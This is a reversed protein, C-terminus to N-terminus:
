ARPEDVQVTRLYKPIWNSVPNSGCPPYAGWPEMADELSPDGNLVVRSAGRLDVAAGLITSDNALVGACLPYRNRAWLREFESYDGARIWVLPAFAGHRVLDSDADPDMVLCPPVLNGSRQGTRAIIGQSAQASSEAAEAQSAKFVPGVQASDDTGFSTSQAATKLHLRLTPEIMPHAVVGNISTCSQGNYRIAGKWIQVAAREPDQDHHVYVYTNGEGDVLCPKSAEFCASLLGSARGSSGFYHLLMPTRSELFRDIFKGADALAISWSDSDLGAQNLLEALVGASRASGAPSRLIVRNGAALGSLLVTLGLSLFANQPLIAVVTGSPVARISIRRSDTQYGSPESGGPSFRELLSRLGDLVEGCDVPTFGTELRLAELLLPRYRELCALLAQRQTQTTPRVEKSSTDFLECIERDSMQNAHQVVQGLPSVVTLREGEGATRGWIVSPNSWESGVTPFTM